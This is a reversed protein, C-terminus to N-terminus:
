DRSIIPHPGMNAKVQQPHREFFRVAKDVKAGGSGREYFPRTSDTALEEIGRGGYRSLGSATYADNIAQSDRTM